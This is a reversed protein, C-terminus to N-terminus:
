SQVPERQLARRVPYKRNGFCCLHNSQYTPTNTWIKPHSKMMMSEGHPDFGVSAASTAPSYLARGKKCRRYPEQSTSTTVLKTTTVNRVNLRAVYFDVCLNIVILKYPCGLAQHNISESRSTLCVRLSTLYAVPSTAFSLVCRREIEAAMSATPM